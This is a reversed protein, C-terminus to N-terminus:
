ADGPDVYVRGAGNQGKPRGDIHVDEVCRIRSSEIGCEAISDEVDDDVISGM